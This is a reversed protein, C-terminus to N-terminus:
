TGAGLSVDGRGAVGRGRFARRYIAHLRPQAVGCRYLLHLWVYIGQTYLVGHREYRRASTTVAAPLVRFRGCHRRLRRALDYDEFVLHDERFGGVARFVNTTVILGQDGYRFAGVPLRSCWAFLRLWYSAHQRDFRLRFSAPHPVDLHTLLDDPVLTDAHLFFLRDGRAARAGANLQRPRGTPAAVVRCGLARAIEPTRDTSGGDAVIVEYHDQAPRLANRLRTLTAPLIAAENLTPIIISCWM